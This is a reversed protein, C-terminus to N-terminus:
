LGGGGEEGFLGRLVIRAKRTATQESLFPGFRPGNEALRRPQNRGVASSSRSWFLTEHIQEFHSNAM